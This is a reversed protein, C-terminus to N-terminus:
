VHRFAGVLRRDGWDWRGGPDLATVKTGEELGSPLTEGARGGINNADDDGCRCTFVM